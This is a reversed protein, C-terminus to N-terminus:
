IQSGNDPTAQDPESLSAILPKIEDLNILDCGKEIRDLLQRENEDMNLGKDRLMNKTMKMIFGDVKSLISEDFRGDYYYCTLPRTWSKDFNVDRLQARADFNQVNIGVAFCIVKKEPPNQVLYPKLWKRFDDWGEIGGAHVGGGYIITKYRFLENKKFEKLSKAECDLEKAIAEAYVKAAGYKSTYIVITKEM